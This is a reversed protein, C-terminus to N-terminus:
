RARAKAGHPQARGRHVRVEAGEGRKVRFTNWSRSSITPKVVVDDWGMEAMIDDLTAREGRNVWRTPILAVGDEELRQLYARKDLAGRVLDLSNILPVEKGRVSRLRAGLAEVRSMFSPQEHFGRCMRINVLDFGSWDVQGAQDLHVLRAEVGREGLARALRPPRVLDMASIDLVHAGGPFFTKWLEPVPACLELISKIAPLAVGHGLRWRARAAMAEQLHRQVKQVLEPPVKHWLSTQSYFLREELEARLEKLRPTEKSTDGETEVLWHTLSARMSSIAWFMAMDCLHSLLFFRNDETAESYKERVVNRMMEWDQRTARNVRDIYATDLRRERLDREVINAIHWSTVLGLSIGQSYYADVIAAADGAMGYRHASVFTDTLHPV